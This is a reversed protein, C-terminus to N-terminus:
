LGAYSESRLVTRDRYRVAELSNVKSSSNAAIYSSRSDLITIKLTPGSITSINCSKSSSWLRPFRFGFHHNLLQRLALAIHGLLEGYSV